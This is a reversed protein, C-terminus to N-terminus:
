YALSYLFCVASFNCKYSGKKRKWNNERGTYLFLWLTHTYRCIVSSTWVDLMILFRRSAFLFHKIGCYMPLCFWKTNCSLKIKFCYLKYIKKLKYTTHFCLKCLFYNNNPLVTKYLLMSLILCIICQIWKCVMYMYVCEYSREVKTTSPSVSRPQWVIWSEHKKNSKSLYESLYLMKNQKFWLTKCGNIKFKFFNSHM